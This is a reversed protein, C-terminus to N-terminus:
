VHVFAIVDAHVLAHLAANVCKSSIVARTVLAKPQQGISLSTSTHFTINRHWCETYLKSECKNLNILDMKTLLIEAKHKM